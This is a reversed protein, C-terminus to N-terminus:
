SEHFQLMLKSRKEICESHQRLFDIWQSSHEKRCYDFCIHGRSDETVLLEPSVKQILLDMVDLDLNPRWCADHLITRGIGDKVNTSLQVVNLLFEITEYSSRRCALHLMTEGNLNYSDFSSNGDDWLQQLQIVDNNRIARAVAVDYSAVRRDNLGIQRSVIMHTRCRKRGTEIMMDNICSSPTQHNSSTM